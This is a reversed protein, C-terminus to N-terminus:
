EEATQKLDASESDSEEDLYSKRRKNAMVALFISLEYLIVMPMALVVQTFIDPPTIVAATVLVLIYAHRRYKRLLPPTVVGFRALFYILIPLEFVLGFALFMRLAFDFYKGLSWMNEVTPSSFGLFFRTAWPLVYYAFVAGLMFCLTSFFVVPLVMKREHPHLGPKIFGWLQLFIWGASLFIGGVLAIKLRVVFGETPALLALKTTGSINKLPQLLFDQLIASFYYVVVLGVVVGVLARLLSGRLDDLHDLFNMEQLPKKKSM